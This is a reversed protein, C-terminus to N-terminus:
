GLILIGGPPKIYTSAIGRGGYEGSYSGIGSILECHSQLIDSTVEILNKRGASKACDSLYGKQELIDILGEAGNIYYPKSKKDSM